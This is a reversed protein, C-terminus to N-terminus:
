AAAPWLWAFAGASLLGYVLGDFVFKLTTTWSQGKWISNPVYGLTYGVFTVTGTLRFVAMYEAGPALALSAVYATFVGVVVSFAFWQVLARGMALGGDPLVTLMGVPGREFKAKIEPDAMDKMSRVCPFMYDGPRAGSARLREMVGDEDPLKGYDSSHFQVAMHLVSSAFFVLVAAVLIPAWLDALFEM